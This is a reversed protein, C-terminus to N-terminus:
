HTYTYRMRLHIEICYFNYNRKLPDHLAIKNKCSKNILKCFMYKCVDECVYVMM